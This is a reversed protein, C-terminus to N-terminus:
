RGCSADAPPPFDSLQCGSSPCPAPYPTHPLIGCCCQGAAAPPLSPNAIAKRRRVEAFRALENASPKADTQSHLYGLQPIRDLPNVEDEESAVRGDGLLSPHRESSGRNAVARVTSSTRHTVTQGLRRSTLAIIEDVEFAVRGDICADHRESSERNPLTLSSGRSESLRFTRRSAFRGSTSRVTLAFRPFLSITLINFTLVFPKRSIALRKRTLALSPIFHGHLLRQPFLNKSFLKHNPHLMQPIQMSYLHLTFM